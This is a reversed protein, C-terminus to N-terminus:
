VSGNSRVGYCKELFFVRSTRGSVTIYGKSKLEANLQRIISYAKSDSVGLAESVEQATIYMKEM